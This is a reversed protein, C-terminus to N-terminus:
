AEKIWEKAKDLESVDFYKAKGSFFHSLIETAAKQFDKDGVLAMSEFADKHKLYFGFDALFGGVTYGKMNDLVLLCKVKKYESIMEEMMPIISEIDEKTVMDSAEAYFINGEKKVNKIM